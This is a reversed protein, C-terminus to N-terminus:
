LGKEPFSYLHSPSTGQCINNGKFPHRGRLVNMNPLSRQLESIFYFSDDTLMDDSACEGPTKLHLENRTGLPSEDPTKDEIGNM